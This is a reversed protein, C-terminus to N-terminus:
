RSLRPKTMRMLEALRIINQFPNIDMNKMLQFMAESLFVPHVRWRLWWAVAWGFMRYGFCGRVIAAAVMYSVATAHKAMFAINQDTNYDKMEEFTVGIKLFMRSIRILSGGYPQRITVARPKRKFDLFRLPRIPIRVGLDLIRESVTLEERHIM